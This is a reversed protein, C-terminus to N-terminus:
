LNHSYFRDYLDSLIQHGTEIEQVYSSAYKESFKTVLLMDCFKHWELEIGYPTATAELTKQLLHSLLFM